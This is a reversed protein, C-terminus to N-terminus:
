PSLVGVLFVKQTPLAGCPLRAIALKEREFVSGKVGAGRPASWPREGPPCSVAAVGRGMGSAGVANSLEEM